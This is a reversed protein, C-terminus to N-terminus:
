GARALPIDEAPPRLREPPFRVTVCTGKGPESELMVSGGHAEILGKVIPLGLGTGRDGTVVDHSAQGFREFVRPQDARSIGVGTDRVGFTLGSEATFHAFITVKGGEPTFKLANSLLNFLIQRLAREDAFLIPSTPPLERVLAVGHKQARAEMLMACDSALAGFDVTGEHLSMAGAEIKSLDLVDTILSLLHNGSIHISDAYEAYRDLAADGFVKDRIVESFGLIANLPTRLEHSMNALFRSKARNAEVAEVRARDSEAQSKALAGILRNKDDLLRSKDFRLRLMSAATEYINKSMMALYAVYLFGLLAVAHHTSGVANWTAVIFATGHVIYGNLTLPLSSGALAMNGALTCALIMTVLMRAADDQDPVRLFYVLSAWCVAFLLHTAAAGYQWRPASVNRLDAQLYRQIVLGFPAGGVTVLLWWTVLNTASVWASFIVCVILAFIPMLWYNPRLNNLALRLQEAALERRERNTLSAPASATIQM